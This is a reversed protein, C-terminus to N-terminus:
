GYEHAKYQIETLNRPGTVKPSRAMTLTSPESIGSISVFVLTLMRATTDVVSTNSTNASMYLTDVNASYAQILNASKKFM